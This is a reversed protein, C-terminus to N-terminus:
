WHHWQRQEGTYLQSHHHHTTTSATTTCPGSRCLPPRETSGSSLPLSSCPSEASPSATSSTLTSCPSAGQSSVPKKGGHSNTILHPHRRGTPLGATDDTGSCCPLLWVKSALSSLVPM